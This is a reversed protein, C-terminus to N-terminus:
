SYGSAPRTLPTYRLFHIVVICPVVTLTLVNQIPKSFHSKGVETSMKVEVEDIIWTSKTSHYRHRKAKETKIDELHFEAWPDDMSQSKKILRKWKKKLPPTRAKKISAPLPAPEADLSNKNSLIYDVLSVLNVMSGDDDADISGAIPALQNANTIKPIPIPASSSM